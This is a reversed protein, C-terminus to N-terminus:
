VSEADVARPRRATLSTWRWPRAATEGSSQDLALPADNDWGLGDAQTLYVPVPIVPSFAREIRRCM